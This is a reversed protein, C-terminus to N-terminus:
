EKKTKWQLSIFAFSLAILATNNTILQGFQVYVLILILPMFHLISRKEDSKKARVMEVLHWFFLILGVIGWCVLVEQFGNHPVGTTTQHIQEIKELRDQLGVGFFLYELKSFLHKTYFAFLDFRGNSIDEDEFRGLFTELVSPMFMIVLAGIALVALGAGWIRKRRVKKSPTALIFMVLILALCLLFTRSMTMVGFMVLAAIMLFDVINQKKAAILQALGCIAINCIFGLQNANYSLSFDEGESDTKGFRYSGTFIAEFDFNTGKLLVFLVTSMMGIAAIALARCIMPYDLKKFNTCMLFACWILEAFSRVYNYFSFEYGIGHLLEWVLMCCVPLVAKSVKVDKGYKIVYIVACALILYKHQFVPSMAISCVTLAIIGNRDCVFATIGGVALIAIAPIAIGLGNTAFIILLMTLLGTYFLIKSTEIPKEYSKTTLVTTQSM